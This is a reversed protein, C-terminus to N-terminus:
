LTTTPIIVAAAKIAGLMIEWLAIGNGLMVLVRDRPRLGHASLFNAVQSSRRSLEAFSLSWDGGTDDVVRLATQKNGVAIVDFYDRAWNFHEIRPWRFQLETQSAQERWNLLADRAEMFARTDQASRM